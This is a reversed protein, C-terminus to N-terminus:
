RQKHGMAVVRFLMRCAFVQQEVSFVKSPIHSLFPLSLPPMCHTQCRVYTHCREQSTHSYIV